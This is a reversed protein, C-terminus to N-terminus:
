WFHSIECIPSYGEFVAISLSCIRELSSFLSKKAPLAEGFHGFHPESRWGAYRECPQYLRAFFHAVIDSSRALSRNKQYVGLVWAADLRISVWLPTTRQRTQRGGLGM